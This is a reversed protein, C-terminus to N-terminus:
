RFDDEFFTRNNTTSIIVNYNGPTQYKEGPNLEINETTFTLNETYIVSEANKSNQFLTPLIIYQNIKATKRKIKMGWREENGEYDLKDRGQRTLDLGESFSFRGFDIHNVTSFIRNSSLNLYTLM